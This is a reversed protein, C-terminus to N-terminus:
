AGPPTGDEPPWPREAEAAIWQAVWVPLTPAAGTWGIERVIEESPVARRGSVVATRLLAESCCTGAVWMSQVIYTFRTDWGVVRTRM